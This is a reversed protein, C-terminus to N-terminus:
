FKEIMWFNNNMRFVDIEFQRGDPSPGGQCDDYGCNWVVKADGQLNLFTIENGNKTHSTTFFGKGNHAWALGGINAVDKIRIIREQGSWLSRVHIPGKPGPAFALKTGDDSIGWILRMRQAQYEPSLDFRGLERGRGKVPDFATIVAQKYDPTQEGVACLGSPSRACFFSSTFEPLVFILEPTGGAMPIRVLHLTRGEEWAPSALQAIIWKGDPSLAAYEELGEATAITENAAGNLSQKQFTTHDARNLNLIIAKGDATWSVVTDEGGEDPSFLRTNLLHTRDDSFDGLYATGRHFYKLVIVRKGDGTTSLISMGQGVWNTIPRPKEILEGTRTDMRASWLNCPSDPRSKIADCPEAYLIRGGPLWAPSAGWWIKKTEEPGFLRTVPGGQLDRTFIGAGSDDSVLYVVRHSGPVFSLGWLGGREEADYLKHANEGSSSMVWIEREWDQNKFWNPNQGFSILAGDPSVSFAVANDRVKQPAGGAVSFAWISSTKSSWEDMSESQPHANALFHVNDPFWAQSLIEWTIDKNKLEEPAPFSQVADSGIPKTHMGKRDNYALYKGDLSIAGSIVPDQSSNFTLQQLKINPMSPPLRRVIWYSAAISSLVLFGAGAALWRLVRPKPRDERVLGKLAAAMDTASQFRAERDKELAKNIIRDLDPTVGPNLERAPAPSRNLIADNVIAVTAGEFAQHGTAMEYLVLGFSFLDSRADLPEGRVQEPSMYAATGLAVGARTLSPHPLANPEPSGRELTPALERENGALSNARKALGFDLIKVMGSDGVFINSPKVDRHIIGQHHAAALGDAIQVALAVLEQTSFPSKNKEALSIRDRLTKGELLPMVIFHRGEQEGFEHVACINPHDLASMARAEREFRELAVPDAALEEPLFKLAVSRGLKIDEAWYLLGMGGGGLVGLVRYHSVRKGILAAGSSVGNEPAAPEGPRHAEASPIQAPGVGPEVYPEVTVILRYGRRAVTEVYQPNDASDGLAQRLKKIATHISHDFEVITDNPWLRKRIEERDVLAGRKEVLMLLIQFPQEQLLIKRNEKRLEGARPDLAYEGIRVHNPAGVGMGSTRVLRVGALVNM